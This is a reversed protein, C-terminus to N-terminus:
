KLNELRYIAHAYEQLIDDILSQIFGESVSRRQVEIEAMKAKIYPTPDLNNIITMNSYNMLVGSKPFSKEVLEDNLEALEEYFIDLAKHIEYSKSVAQLHTIHMQVATQFVIQSISQVAARTNGATPNETEM